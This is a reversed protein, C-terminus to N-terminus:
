LMELEYVGVQASRGSLSKQGLLRTSIEGALLRQTGESMLVQNAAAITELRAAVNVVDGVVTYEMRKMSGINGVIAQGSNIGIALRVEVQYEEQWDDAAAELFRMMDRAARTARLAHDEHTVPAGWVAMLCDGIFKDVTGGHRFVIETLMSFLENLLAVVRDPPTTESARTFAVMDAFLVTIEQYHGGLSLTNEGSLISDVVPQSLFRSLDNRQKVQEQIAQEGEILEQAMQSVAGSLTGLEDSRRLPPRLKSWSRQGIKAAERSILHIPKTLRGSAWFALFASVLFLGLTVSLALRRVEIYDALAVDLPRWVALTWDLGAVPGVSAIMQQGDISVQRTLDVAITGTRGAFAPLNSIDKGVAPVAMGDLAQSALVEGQASAIVVATQAFGNEAVIQELQHRLQDVHHVASVFGVLGDNGPVRTVLVGKGSSMMGYSWGDRAAEVRLEDTLPPVSDEDAGAKSMVTDVGADPVTLRVIDLHQLSGLTARLLPQALAQEAESLRSAELVAQAFTALEERHSGTSEQVQERIRSLLIHQGREESTRVAEGYRPLLYVGASVPLVVGILVFLGFTKQRISLGKRTSSPEKM